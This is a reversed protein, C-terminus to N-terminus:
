RTVAFRASSNQNDAQIVITYIGSQLHVGFSQQTVNSQLGYSEVMKGSMDFIFARANTMPSLSRIFLNGDQYYARTDNTNEKIGTGSGVYILEVDDIYLTSSTSGSGPTKSSTFNVLIYAAADSNNYTTYDFKIAKRVWASSTGGFNLECQAIVNASGNPDNSMPVRQDYAEHIVAEVRAQDGSGPSYYAWFVLSDPRMTLPANFLTDSQWTSNYGDSATMTPAEVRGTTMVGNVIFIGAVSTTKIRASYTGSHVITSERFLTQGATTANGTGTKNSSWNQPEETSSGVNDWLEFGSNSIQMQTFASISSLFMGAFLLKIKM